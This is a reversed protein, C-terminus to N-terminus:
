AATQGKLRIVTARYARRCAAYDLPRMCSKHKYIQCAVRNLEMGDRVSALMAAYLQRWQRSGPQNM